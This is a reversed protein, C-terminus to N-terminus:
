WIGPHGKLEYDIQARVRERAKEFLKARRQKKIELLEANERKDRKGYEEIIEEEQQPIKVNKSEDSKRKPNLIEDEEEPPVKYDNNGPESYFPIGLATYLKLYLQVFIKHSNKFIYSYFHVKFREERDDLGVGADYFNDGLLLVFDLDKQAYMEQIAM